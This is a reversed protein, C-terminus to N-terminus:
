LFLCWSFEYDCAFWNVFRRRIYGFVANHAFCETASARELSSKEERKASHRSPFLFTSAVSIWVQQVPESSAANVNLYKYLYIKYMNSFRNRHHRALKKSKAARKPVFAKTSSASLLTGEIDFVKREALSELQIIERHFVKRRRGEWRRLQHMMFLKISLQALAVIFAWGASVLAPPSIMAKSSLSSILDRPHDCQKTCRWYIIGADSKGGNRSSSSSAMFVAQVQQSSGRFSVKFTECSRSRLNNGDVRTSIYHCLFLHDLM